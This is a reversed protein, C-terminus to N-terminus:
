ITVGLGRLSSHLLRAKRTSLGLSEKLALAKRRDMRVRRGGLTNRLIHEKRKKTVISLETELKCDALERFQNIMKIQEYQWRKCYSMPNKQSANARFLTLPKGGTKLKLVNPNLQKRVNDRIKRKAFKTLLANETNSLPESLSKDLTNQISEFTKDKPSTFACKKIPSVKVPAVNYTM